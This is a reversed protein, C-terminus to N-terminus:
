NDSNWQKKIANVKSAIFAKKSPDLELKEAAEWLELDDKLQQALNLTYSANQSALVAQRLSEELENAYTNIFSLQSDPLLPGKYLNLAEALESKNLHQELALFNANINTNLQYPRSNLPLDKRLKFLAVKLSQTHNNDNYLHESLQEGSLGEPHLCLLVLIEKSHLSLKLTKNQYNITNKGLLELTLSTEQPKTQQTENIRLKLPPPGTIEPHTQSALDKLEPLLGLESKIIHPNELQESLAYIDDLEDILNKHNLQRFLDAKYLKTLSEEKHHGMTHFAKALQELKNLTQEPNQKNQKQLILCERFDTNLQDVKNLASSRAKALNAKAQKYDNNATYYSTLALHKQSDEWAHQGSQFAQYATISKENKGQQWHIYGLFWNQYHNERRYVSELNEITNLAQDYYGALVLSFLSLFQNYHSNQLYSAKSLSHLKAKLKNNLGLKSHILIDFIYFYNALMKDQQINSNAILGAQEIHKKAENITSNGLAYTSKLCLLKTKDFTNIEKTKISALVSKMSSFEGLWFLSEAYDVKASESGKDIAKCLYSQSEFINTNDIAQCHAAWRDDEANPNKLKKYSDFGQEYKELIHYGEIPSSLQKPINLITIRKQLSELLEGRKM